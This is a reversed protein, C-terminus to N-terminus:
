PRGRRACASCGNGNDVIQLCMLERETLREGCARRKRLGALWAYLERDSAAREGSGPAAGGGRAPRSDPRAGSMSVGSTDASPQADAVNLGITAAPCSPM